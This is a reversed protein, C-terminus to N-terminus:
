SFEIAIRQIRQFTAPKYKQQLYKEIRHVEKWQPQEPAYVHAYAATLANRYTRIHTLMTVTSRPDILANLAHTMHNTM